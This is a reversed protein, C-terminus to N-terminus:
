LANILLILYYFTGLGLQGVGALAVFCAISSDVCADCVGDLYNVTGVLTHLRLYVLLLPDYISGRGLYLQTSAACLALNIVDIPLYGVKVVYDLAQDILLLGALCLRALLFLLSVPGSQGLGLCLQELLDIAHPLCRIWLGISGLCFYGSQTGLNIILDLLSTSHDFLQGVLQAM